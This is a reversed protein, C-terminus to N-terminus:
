LFRGCLVHMCDCPGECLAHTHEWPMQTAGHTNLLPILRLAAEGLVREQRRETTEPGVGGGEREKTPVSVM